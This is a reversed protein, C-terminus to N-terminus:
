LEKSIPMKQMVNILYAFAYDECKAYGSKGALQDLSFLAQKYGTSLSELDLIPMSIGLLYRSFDYEQKLNGLFDETQKEAVLCIIRNDYELSVNSFGSRRLYRILGAARLLDKRTEHQIVILRYPPRLKYQVLHNKVDENIKRGSLLDEVVSVGSRLDSNLSTFEEAQAFYKAILPFLQRNMETLTPDDQRVALVAVPEGDSYIYMMMVPNYGHHFNRIMQPKDSFDDVICNDTNVMPETSVPRPLAKGNAPDPWYADNKAWPNMLSTLAKFDAIDDISLANEIVEFAIEALKQIPAHNSAAELLRNEWTIFFDFSALISNLLQEYDSDFFILRSQGNVIIYANEYKEDSFYDKARGFFAYEKAFNNDGETLFRIGSITMSDDKIKVAPHYDRLYWQLISMSLKM